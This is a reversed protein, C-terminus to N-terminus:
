KKKKKHTKLQMKDLLISNNITKCLNAKDYMEYRDKPKRIDEKIDEQIMTRIDFCQIPQLTHYMISRMGNLCSVTANFLTGSPFMKMFSMLANKYVPPLSYNHKARKYETNQFLTELANTISIINIVSSYYDDWVIIVKIDDIQYRFFHQGADVKFLYEEDQNVRNNDLYWKFEKKNFLIPESKGNLINKQKYLKMLTYDRHLIFQMNIQKGENKKISVPFAYICETNDFEYDGDKECYSPIIFHEYPPLIFGIKDDKKVACINKDSMIFSYTYPPIVMKGKDHVLSFYKQAIEKKDLVKYKNPIPVNLKSRKM